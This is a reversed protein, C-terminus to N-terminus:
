SLSGLSGPVKSVFVRSWLMPLIDSYVAGKETRIGKKRMGEKGKRRRGERKGGRGM